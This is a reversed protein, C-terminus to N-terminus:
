GFDALLTSNILFQSSVSFSNSTQFAVVSPTSTSKDDLAKRLNLRRKLLFPIANLVISEFM